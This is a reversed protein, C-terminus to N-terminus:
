AKPSAAGCHLAFCELTSEAGAVVTTTFGATRLRVARDDM